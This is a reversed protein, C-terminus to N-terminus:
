FWGKTSVVKELVKEINDPLNPFFDIGTEEELSDISVVFEALVKKSGENKMKFAISKFTGDKKRELLIKYYYEPVSIKNKVGIQELGEKLIPGTVIYLNEKTQVWYRVREELHKWIGRNFQPAQPSMNSMYFSESKAEQSFNFDAAPALHGRDYGSKAYDTPKASKTKVMKDELFKDRESDGETEDATLKYAVWEAQEHEERYRLTYYKHQVIADDNKKHAPLGWLEDDDLNHKNSETKQKPKPKPKPKSALANEPVAEVEEFVDEEKEENPIEKKIEENKVQKENLQKPRNPPYPPNQSLANISIQLCFVWLFIYFKM